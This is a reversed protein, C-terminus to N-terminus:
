EEFHIPESVVKWVMLIVLSMFRISTGISKESFASCASAAALIM